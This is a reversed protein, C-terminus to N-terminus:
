FMEPLLDIGYKGALIGKSSITNNRKLPETLKEM